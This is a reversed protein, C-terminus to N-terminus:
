KKFLTHDTSDILRGKERFALRFIKAPKLDPWIPDAYRGPPAPYGKYNKNAPDTYLRMWGNVADILVIEKTRTYENESACNIPIIKLGGLANLTLYLTHETATVGINALATVMDDTVACFQKELGVETDVLSFVPRFDKHTR